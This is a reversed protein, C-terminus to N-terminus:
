MFSRRATGGAFPAPMQVSSWGSRSGHITISTGTSSYWASTPILFQRLSRGYRNRLTLYCKWSVPLKRKWHGCSRLLGSLPHKPIVRHRCVIKIMHSASKAEERLKQILYEGDVSTLAKYWGSRFFRECVMADSMAAQNGPKKKLRKLADRYDKVAQLVIANALNEYPDTM